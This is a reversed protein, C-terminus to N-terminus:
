KCKLEPGSTLLDVLVEVVVEVVVVVRQTVELILLLTDNWGYVERCKNM